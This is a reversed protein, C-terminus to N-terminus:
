SLSSKLSKHSPARRRIRPMPKIAVIPGMLAAERAECARQRDAYRLMPAVEIGHRQLRGAALDIIAERDHDTFPSDPRQMHSWLLWLFDETPTHETALSEKSRRNRRKYITM